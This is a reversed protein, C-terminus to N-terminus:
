AGEPSTTRTAALAAALRDIDAAALDFCAARLLRHWAATLLRNM